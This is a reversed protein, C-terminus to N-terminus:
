NWRVTFWTGAVRYQIYGYQLTIVSNNAAFTLLVAGSDLSVSVGGDENMDKTLSPGKIIRLEVVAENRRPYSGDVWQQTAYGAPNFAPPISTNRSLYRQDSEDRSYSHGAPEYSGAPQYDGKPQFRQDSEGKSYAHDAAAYDGKPQFRQDSEDKSYAGVDGAKKPVAGEIMRAIADHLQDYRAKDLKLGAKEIVSCIEEQVATFAGARLRTAKIGGAVNGDTYRGDATATPEIQGIRLM